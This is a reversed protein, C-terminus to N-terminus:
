LKRAVVSFVHWHKRRGSSTTGEWEKEHFSEIKFRRLLFKVQKRSHFTMDSLNAWEDNIGFFHGSFRGGPRISAVIKRWLLGFHEPTCFPLSYSANVLDCKPLTIREFSAVRTRLRPQHKTPVNSRIWRIAAPQNDIALVSWGSRLLQRTDRGAGCGLDIAYRERLDSSENESLRLVERLTDWAIGKATKEYYGNWSWRKRKRERPIITRCSSPSTL